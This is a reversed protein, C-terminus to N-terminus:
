TNSSEGYVFLTNVHENETGAPSTVMNSTTERECRRTLSQLHSFPIAYMRKIGFSKLTRARTPRIIHNTFNYYNTWRQTTNARLSEAIVIYIFLIPPVGLSRPQVIYKNKIHVRSEWRWLYHVLNHCIERASPM